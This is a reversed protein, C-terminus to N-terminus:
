KVLFPWHRLLHYHYRHVALWVAAAAIAILLVATWMVFKAWPFSRNERKMVLLFGAFVGVFYLACMPVAFLMLNFVDPTPTVV